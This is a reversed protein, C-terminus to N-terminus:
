ALPLGSILLAFEADRHRIDFTDQYRWNKEAEKSCCIEKKPVTRSMLPKAQCTDWSQSVELM